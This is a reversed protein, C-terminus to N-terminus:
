DKGFDTLFRDTKAWHKHAKMMKETLADREEQPLDKYKEPHEFVPFLPSQDPLSQKGTTGKKVPLADEPLAENPDKGAFAYGNFIAQTRYQNYASDEAHTFLIIIQGKTL